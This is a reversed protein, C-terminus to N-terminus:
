NLDSFDFEFLGFGMFPKLSYFFKAVSDLEQILNNIVPQKKESLFKLFNKSEIELILKAILWKLPIFEEQSFVNCLDLLVDFLSINEQSSFLLDELFVLLKKRKSISYNKYLNLSYKFFLPFFNRAEPTNLLYIIFHLVSIDDLCDEIVNFLANLQKKIIRHVPVFLISNKPLDDLFNKIPEQYDPVLVFLTYLCFSLSDYFPQPQMPSALILTLPSLFLTTFEKSSYQRHQAFNTFLRVADPRNTGPIQIQSLLAKAFEDLAPKLQNINKVMESFSWDFLIQIISRLNPFELWIRFFHKILVSLKEAGLSVLNPRTISSLIIRHSSADLLSSNTTYSTIFQPFFSSLLAFSFHSTIFQFIRAHLLRFGSTPQMFSLLSSLLQSKNEQSFEFLIKNLCAFFCQVVRDPFTHDLFHILFSFLIQKNPDSMKSTDIFQLALLFLEQSRPSWSHFTDIIEPFIDNEFSIKLPSNSKPLFFLLLHFLFPPSNLALITSPNFLKTLPDSLPDPFAISPSLIELIPLFKEILNFKQPSNQLLSIEPLLVSNLLNNSLISLSQEQPKRTKILKTLSSLTISLETINSQSYCSPIKESLLNFINDALLAPLRFVFNSALLSAHLDDVASNLLGLHFFCSARLFFLYPRFPKSKIKALVATYRSIATKYESALFTLHAKSMSVPFKEDKLLISELFDEEAEAKIIELSLSNEIKQIKQIKQIKEIKQIKQIKKDTSIGLICSEYKCLFVLGRLSYCSSLYKTQEIASTADQIALKQNGLLFHVLSRYWFQVNVRFKISLALDDLAKSLKNMAIFCRGRFFLCKPNEPESTLVINLDNAAHHFSGLGMYARSRGLYGAPSKPALKIMATYDAVAAEFNSTKYHSRARFEFLEPDDNKLAIARSFDSVSKRIQGVSWHAVGLNLHFDPDDLYSPASFVFDSICERFMNKEFFVFARSHRYKHSKPDLAIASSIDALAKDLESQKHFSLGRYFYFPAFNKRTAIANTFESVSDAFRDMKFLMKGRLLRLMHHDGYLKFAADLDELSKTHNHYLYAKIRLIHTKMSPEAELVVSFDKAADAFNRMKYLVRGRVLLSRPKLGETKICQSIQELAEKYRKQKEYIRASLYYADTCNEGHKEAARSFVELAQPFKHQKYYCMGIRVISDISNSNIEYVREFDARAYDYRGFGMWVMARSFVYEEEDPALECAKTLYVLANKHDKLDSFIKGLGFFLRPDDPLISIALLYDDAAKQLNGVLRYVEGRQAYLAPNHPDIRLAKALTDLAEDYSGKKQLATALHCLVNGSDANLKLAAKFDAIADDIRSDKFLASGRNDYFVWVKPSIRIAESYDQIAKKNEKMYFYCLGRNNFSEEDQPNLKVAMSFDEIAREHNEMLYYSYGRNHWYSHIGSNIKIAETFDAISKEYEGMKFYTIGRTNLISHDEKLNTIVKSYDEIAKEYQKTETYSDGRAIYYDTNRLDLTIATTFDKIAEEQKNLGLECNGRHYFLQADNPTKKILKNFAIIAPEYKKHKLLHLASNINTM